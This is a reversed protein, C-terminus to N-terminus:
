AHPEGSRWEKRPIFGNGLLFATMVDADDTATRGSEPQVGSPKMPILVEMATGNYRLPAWRGLRYTQRGSSAFPALLWGIPAVALASITSLFTRRIM